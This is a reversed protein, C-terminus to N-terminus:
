PGRLAATSRFTSTGAPDEFTITYYLMRTAQSAGAPGPQWGAVDQCWTQGEFSPTGKLGATVQAFDSTLEYAPDEPEALGAPAEYARLRRGARDWEIRQIESLNPKRDVNTDTKWLVVHDAGVALVMASSRIAGDLRATVVEARSNRRRLHQQDHQSQYVSYVLGAISSAILSTIALALVLEVLSVGRVRRAPRERRVISGPHFARGAM